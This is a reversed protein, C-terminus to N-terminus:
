RNRGDLWVPQTFAGNAAIDWVEFRVWKRGSLNPRARLKREGFPGTDTLDIRERYVRQGDGSIIEAFKLPFTWRLSANVEPMADGTPELSEGSQRGGITCNDILIEGTTVFFRGARLTDLIPQWGEDFRPLRDLRLYNINMHSYLEHAATIKFVDVEGPLYKAQGWNAMDDLLNLCREGLRERSLDAPMAKWAAGLWHSSLYFDENRFIDPTWNSAKIRPHASWALGREQQLLRFMDDRSGVRYVTGLGVVQEIFPEDSKRQQIWYVPKPFLCMWHGPHREPAPLGLFENVEEGPIVLLKHDSHRRSEAFMSEMERLRLTGSDKQHGDGHFEALHLANVGLEKFVNVWAPTSLPEGKLKADMAAVAIAMHYHSTFAIHGDLPVFRDGHTYRLTDRLAAEADGLTVLCFMGLHQASGPPANCWPVFNGGGTKPQRIGLGFKTKQELHDRGLWVYGLNDTLDRPPQHQHPPPFCALSAGDSEAVITRHRVIQPEDRRSVDTKVRQIQRTDNHMWAVNKWGPEDGVLGLDYVFARAEEQTTVVAELHVLPCSNFLTFRWAGRFSGATLDGLEITARRGTSTVTARRLEFKSAFTEHPRKAPNDFFVNFVSMEPPRGRPAERSGVTLFVAPDVNKALTSLKTGDAAAIALSEVLPRNPELNLTLRGRQGEKVPWEALLTPGDARIAIECEARYGSLDVPVAASAFSPCLLSPCFLSTLWICVNLPISKM